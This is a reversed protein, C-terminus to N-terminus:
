KEYFMGKVTINIFQISYSDDKKREQLLQWGVWENSIASFDIFM